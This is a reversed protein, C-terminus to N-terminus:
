VELMKSFMLCSPAYGYIRALREPFDLRCNGSVMFHGRSKAWMTVVDDLLRVAKRPAGPLSFVARIFCYPRMMLQISNEVRPMLFEQVSVVALVEEGPTITIFIKMQQGTLSALFLPKLLALGGEIKDGHKTDQFREWCRLVATWDGIDVERAIM